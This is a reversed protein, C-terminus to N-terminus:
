YYYKNHNRILMVWDLKIQKELQQLPTTYYKKEFIKYKFGDKYLLRWKKFKKCDKHKIEKIDLKKIIKNFKIKWDHRRETEGESM